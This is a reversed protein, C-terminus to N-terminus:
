ITAGISAVMKERHPLRSPPGPHLEYTACGGLLLVLWIYRLMSKMM